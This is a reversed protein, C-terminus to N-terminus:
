LLYYEIGKVANRLIAMDSDIMLEYKCIDTSYCYEGAQNSKTKFIIDEIVDCKNMYENSVAQGKWIIIKQMNKKTTKVYMAEKDVLQNVEEKSIDCIQIVKDLVSKNKEYPLGFEVYAIVKTIMNKKEVEYFTYGAGDEMDRMLDNIISKEVSSCDISYLQMKKYNEVAKRLEIIELM